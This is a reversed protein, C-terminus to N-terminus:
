KRIGVKKAQEEAIKSYKEPDSNFTAPCMPCCLNYIKGKYEVTVPNKMDVANGTVPCITNNAMVIVHATAAPAAVAPAKEAKDSSVGCSGCMAFASACVLSICGAVIVAYYRKAM